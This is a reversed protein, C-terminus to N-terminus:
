QRFQQHAASGQVGGDPELGRRYEDDFERNSITKSELAERSVVREKSVLEHYRHTGKKRCERIKDLKQKMAGTMVIGTNWSGGYTGSVDIDDKGNM